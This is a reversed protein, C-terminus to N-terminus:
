SKVGFGDAVLEVRATVRGDATLVPVAVLQCGHAELALRIEEACLAARRDRDAALAEQAKRVDYVTKDESM